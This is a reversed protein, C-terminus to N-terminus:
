HVKLFGELRRVNRADRAITERVVEPGQVDLPFNRQKAENLVTSDRGAELFAETLAAATEAPIGPPGFVAISGTFDARPDQTVEAFTPVDPLMPHRKAGFTTLVRVPPPPTDPQPLLSITMFMGADASGSRVAEVVSARDEMMMQENLPVGLFARILAMGVCWGHSVTLTRTKAAALFDQVNRIPSNQDVFLAASLGLTLKAIPTMSELRLADSHQAEYIERSLPEVAVLTMGDPATQAV